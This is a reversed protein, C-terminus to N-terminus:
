SAPLYSCCSLGPALQSRFAAGKSHPTRVPGDFLKGLQAAVLGQTWQVQRLYSHAPQPGAPAPRDAVWHAHCPVCPLKAEIKALLAQRGLLGQRSGATDTTRINGSQPPANRRVTFGARPATDADQLANFKACYSLNRLLETSRHLLVLSTM